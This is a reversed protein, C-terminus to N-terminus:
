IAQPCSPIQAWVVQWLLLTVLKQVSQDIFEIGSFSLPLHGSNMPGGSSSRALTPHESHLKMREESDHMPPIPHQGHGPLPPPFEPMGHPGFHPPYMGPGRGNGSTQHPHPPMPEMPPM